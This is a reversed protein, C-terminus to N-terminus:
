RPRTKQLVELLKLTQDYTDLAIIDTRFKDKYKELVLDAKSALTTFFYRSLMGSQSFKLHYCLEETVDELHPDSGGYGIFLVSYKLFLTDIAMAFGRYNKEIRIYDEATFVFDDVVISKLDGHVHLISPTKSYIAGAVKEADNFTYSCGVLKKFGQDLAAKELLQDYNSTLIFPYDTAVILKHYDSTPANAFIQSLWDRLLKNINVVSDDIKALTNKLTSAVRIPDRSLRNTADDLLADFDPPLISPDPVYNKLDRCFEIFKRLLEDWTPLGSSVSAGSGVFIILKDQQLLPVLKAIAQDLDFRAMIVGPIIATNNSM